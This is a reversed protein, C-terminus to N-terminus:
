GSKKTHILEPQSAQLVRSIEPLDSWPHRLFVWKRKKHCVTLMTHRAVTLLDSIDQIELTIRHIGQYLPVVSVSVRMKVHTCWTPDQNIPGAAKPRARAPPKMCATGQRPEDLPPSSGRHEAASEEKPQTHPRRQSFRDQSRQASASQRTSRHEPAKHRLRSAEPPPNSVYWGLALKNAGLRQWSAKSRPSKDSLDNLGEPVPSSLPFNRLIFMLQWAPRTLFFTLVYSVLNIM